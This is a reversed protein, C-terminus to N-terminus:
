RTAGTTSGGGATPSSGREGAVAGPPSGVLHLNSGTMATTRAHLHTADFNGSEGAVCGGASDTTRWTGALHRGDASLRVTVLGVVKPQVGIFLPSLTTFTLSAVNGSVSGSFANPGGCGPWPFTGFIKRGRQDITFRTPSGSAVENPSRQWAGTWRTTMLPLQKATAIPQSSSIGFAILAVLAECGVAALLPGSVDRDLKRLYSEAAMPRAPRHRPWVTGDISAQRVDGFRDVDDRRRRAAHIILVVIALLLVPTAITNGNPAFMPDSTILLKPISINEPYPAMCLAVMAVVARSQLLGAKRSEAEIPEVGGQAAIVFPVLLLLWAYAVTFSPTLLFVAALYLWQMELTMKDHLRWFALVGAALLLASVISYNRALAHAVTSFVPSHIGGLTDFIAFLSANSRLFPLGGWLALSKGSGYGFSGRLITMWFHATIALRPALVFAAGLNVVVAILVARVILRYQRHSLYILLFIVMYPKIAIAVGMLAASFHPRRGFMMFAFVALVYVFIEPQGIDLALLGPVSLTAAILYLFALFRSRIAIALAPLLWAIILAGIYVFGGAPYPLWAVLAVPVLYGPNLATRVVHGTYPAHSRVAYYLQFFDGFYHKGVLPGYGSLAPLWGPRDNPAWLGLGYVQSGQQYYEYIVWWMVFALLFAFLMTAWLAILRRDRDDQAQGHNPWDAASSGM